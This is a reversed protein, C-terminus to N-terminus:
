TELKGPGLTRTCIIKRQHSEPLRIKTIKGEGISDTSGSKKELWTSRIWTLVTLQALTPGDGQVFAVHLLVLVQLVPEVVVWIEHLQRAVAASWCQTPQEADFLVFAPEPFAAQEVFAATAV